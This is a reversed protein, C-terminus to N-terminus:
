TIRIKMNLFFFSHLSLTVLFLDRLNSAHGCVMIILGVKMQLTEGGAPRHCGM